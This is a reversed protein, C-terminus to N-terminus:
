AWILVEKELLDPLLLAMVDQSGMGLDALLNATQHVKGLFAHATLAEGAQPEGGPPLFCHVPQEPSNAVAKHLLEYTSNVALRRALPVRELREIDELTRRPSAQPAM